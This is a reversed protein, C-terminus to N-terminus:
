SDLQTGQAYFAVDGRTLSYVGHVVGSDAAFMDNWRTMLSYILCLCLWLVKGEPGCSSVLAGETLLM